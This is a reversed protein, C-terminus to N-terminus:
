ERSEVRPRGLIRGRSVISGCAKRFNGHSDPRGSRWCIRKHTLTHQIPCELVTEITYGKIPRHHHFLARFEIISVRSNVGGLTLALVSDNNHERHHTHRQRINPETSFCSSDGTQRNACSSGATRTQLALSLRQNSSAIVEGHTDTTNLTYLLAVM